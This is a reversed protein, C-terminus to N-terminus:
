KIHQKSLAQTPITSKVMFRDLGSSKKNPFFKLGAKNGNNRISRNLNKKKKKKKRTNEQNLKQLGDLFKDM